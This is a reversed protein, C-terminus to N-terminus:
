YKFFEADPIERGLITLYKEIDPKATRSDRWVLSARPISDRLVATSHYLGHTESLLSARNPNRSTWNVANKYIDMFKRVLEWKEKAFDARVVLLLAPFSSREESENYLKQLNEVRRIESSNKLAVTAYPETLLAYNANKTILSNPINALPVSFDLMVSDSSSEGAEGSFNETKIEKKSLLHSLIKSSSNESSCLIQQGKLDEISGYSEEGTLLFLNGNQVTGLCVLSKNGKVFVEAATEPTLFGADLEGKLLAPLETKESEFVKFAMNQVSLKSKNEILYACPACSVGKLVGLRISAGESFLLTSLLLEVLFVLIKKFM